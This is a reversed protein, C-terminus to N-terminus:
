RLTELFALLEQKTQMWVDALSLVLVRLDRWDLIFAYAHRFVHWIV